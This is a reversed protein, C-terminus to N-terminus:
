SSPPECFLNTYILYLVNNGSLKEEMMKELISIDFQEDSYSDIHEIIKLFVREKDVTTDGGRKRPMFSKKPNGKGTQFNSSYHVYYVVDEARLNNVCAYRGKGETSWEDDKSDFIAQHVAKDVLSMVHNRLKRKEKHLLVVVTLVTRESTLSDPHVRQKGTLFKQM